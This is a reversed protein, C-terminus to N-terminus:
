QPNLALPPIASVTASVKLAFPLLERRDLVGDPDIMLIAASGNILLGFASCILLGSVYIRSKRDFAIQASGTTNGDENRYYEENGKVPQNKRYFLTPSIFLTLTMSALLAAAFLASGDFMITLDFTM